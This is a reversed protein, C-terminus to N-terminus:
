PSTAVPLTFTFKSGKGESSEAWIKGGHAEVIHKAIALGLGTGGGARAKDAKYFREFIRPLDDVPIGIGTDVVSVLIDDGEIKAVCSIRGGSHSFKIANHLLNVLVQEVREKDALVKPIGSPIDVALSLRSRDAQPKLREVVRTVLGGIDIPEKKISVEGSEIRSLESLESVM